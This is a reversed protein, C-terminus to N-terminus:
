QHPRRSSISPVLPVAVAKFMLPAQEFDFCDSLDDARSDAYGLTPLYFNEEIFRLISGFDHTKHSVYGAKAALTVSCTRYASLNV